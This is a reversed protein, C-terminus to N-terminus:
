NNMSLSSGVCMWGQRRSRSALVTYVSVFASFDSQKFRGVLLFPSIPGSPVCSRGHRVYRRRTHVAHIVDSPDSHQVTSCPPRHRMDFHRSQEQQYCQPNNSTDGAVPTVNLRWQSKRQRDSWLFHACFVKHVDVVLALVCRLSRCLNKSM